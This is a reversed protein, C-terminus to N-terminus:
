EGSGEEPTPIGRHWIAELETLAAEFRDVAATAKALLEPVATADIDGDPYLMNENGEIRNILGDLRHNLPYFLADVAAHCVRELLKEYSDADNGPEDFLINGLAFGPTGVASLPHFRFTGNFLECISAAKTHRAKWAMRVPHEHMVEKEHGNENTDM